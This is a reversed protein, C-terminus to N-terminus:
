QRPKREIDEEAKDFMLGMEARLLDKLAQRQGFADAIRFAMSALEFAWKLAQEPTM